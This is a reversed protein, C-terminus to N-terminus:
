VRMRRNWARAYREANRANIVTAGALDIVSGRGPVGLRGITISKYRTRLSGITVLDEAPATGTLVALSYGTGRRRSIRTAKTLDGERSPELRALEDLLLGRTLSSDWEKGCSTRLRWPYGKISSASIISAAASIMEEFSAPGHVGYRTDVIVLTRPQFNDVNHRVMMTGLKATSRWHVLRLDDGVVYDRINQFAIGGEPAEGSSQGDLDRTLGFPFSEMAFLRPHVILESIQQDTARRNTLGFPDPRDLLLPGVPYVGRRPAPVDLEVVTSEGAHLDPILVPVHGAGVTELAVGAATRRRGVNTVTLISTVNNGATTRTPRLERHTEITRERRSYVAGVLMAMLLCVAILV